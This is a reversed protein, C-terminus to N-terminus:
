SGGIIVKGRRQLEYLTVLAVSDLSSKKDARADGTCEISGFGPIHLDIRSVFSSFGTRKESGEGLEIPTRSKSETTEFTPMPWQVKKCLEYLSTRPGGKKTKISAIVPTGNNPICAKESCNNFPSSVRNSEVPLQVENIKHRKNPESSNKVSIQNDVDIDMDFASSDSHHESDLKRKQSASRSCSIGRNELEKLLQCAAEGKAAKRGRECGRGILLADKLQLSLEAHVMDGKKICKEKIFYGLSDCLENLKRLPPLELKDPTVIPSLLPEYIRWVEDINLNTDILIAGAISEVMDGLAKPGKTGQLSRSTHPESIFKVYETIQSLLSGSHHQLHQQLNRRVAVQAFNENNVSASRLDTLEGPDIDPHSLFLHWTILLDLVSDGLFELRQYCYSVGQEQETAHTIAEQLLGKVSFKYQLKSELTAIENTKPVYSRLSATTIAQAVLSPDLEADIGLWKMIHVAAVLGGGFYYAGILAEVCDAITKSGMWRHGRDCCKGVVIKPDKTQFKGDLPVELTDVGCKCPVPRLSCQGPAVWRRPDFASDRIYGQLKHATGLKHLTANCVAWSRRATLQGEHKEPYNLFLYCSVAYKLVSDGLLELREMSFNECCRLTTLAELILTSSIHFNSSCSDIEGRLQSALMLSELRYMVSPLLYFSRLVERSLDIRILLEPPMHVHIHPKKILVGAELTNGNTGEDGFNVLLNHPNHSQKLQLLPQGPYMLTIGYKKDFYEAFSTYESPATDTSGDFPSEASTNSMIKVVSYIKGTHIALVVIDKLNNIDVLNDALHIFDASNCKTELFGDICPASNGTEGNFRETGLLAGKKLIEVASVCSNIGMWNIRYPEPSSTNELPLLLYMNSTNWLSKTEKQLLFERPAGASKSRFFLRGFLGNFFFEQFLKAKMMQEPELRVQGCFSVSSKVMKSVLYLELEINGVDDDLKTEILLVFGSYLEWPINCCFDFKYVQFIAEDKEGWTGSLARIFTTGHLEKRKTTGAGSTSEKSQVIIDQESPLEISPLLHDDLAGMQHLKKCAELCVLQKALHSNRSVPGVITQFAANPPLIMKCEYSGGLYSFQFTPKPVFYKDGPLKECYRHILSVSSDATVSAGTADVYYADTDKITCAKLIFADPDRNIAADTMSRESRIIDFLQDRQKANGRELMVIFQSNNQRARGRSQVYSRVTKPLDFRIVCSCNPVHIGEEVVDTAFLLNVKGSRFSELTEKQMKPPLSDASTSSGTLYSVTFHSLSSVKKVFREIVKATVIREVFILCLVQGAGRLSQFILILEYLKPSVYGLDVAKSYNSGSGLLNEDGLPFYEGIIHLVADLFYRYQLSSEGHVECEEKTNPVKELCVKVAEYACLLGLDDLCYLIKSHANSLRKQLMKHKEDMDKYRSQLSQQLETLSADHKSWLAEIIAKLVPSPMQAKDYFRCTEKASPVYVEMETRDEVTYIQSDLMMELESIQDECDATSSVGKRVVPSATMGFIKPKGNSKHYFEKMIKTYPHNGTARHCEDIIMLCVTELSLFAKRLVDLFVQPTMVLVDQKIIEKEWSKLSWEDVGKAGYYDGVELNTHIKIYEFQQNVLHVTPALFIILKKNGSSKIAQAIDKILMVAILTKGAGTELVAITNRRMAVEFMKSQYSRPKYCESSFSSEQLSLDDDLANSDRTENM